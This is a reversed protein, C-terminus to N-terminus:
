ASLTSEAIRITNPPGWSNRHWLRSADVGRTTLPKPTGPSWIWERGGHAQRLALDGGCAILRAAYAGVAGALLTALRHRTAALHAPHPRGEVWAFTM